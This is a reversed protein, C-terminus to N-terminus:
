GGEGERGERLYMYDLMGCESAAKLRPLSNRAELRRASLYRCVHVHAYVVLPIHVVQQNCTTVRFGKFGVWCEWVHTCVYTM